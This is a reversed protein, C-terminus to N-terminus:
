TWDHGSYNQRYHLRQRQPHQIHHQVVIYPLNFHLHPLLLLVYEVMNPLIACNRAKTTIAVRREKAETLGPIQVYYPGQKGNVVTSCLSPPLLSVKGLVVLVKSSLLLHVCSARFYYSSDKPDHGGGSGGGRLAQVRRRRRLKSEEM